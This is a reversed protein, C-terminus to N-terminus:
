LGGGQEVRPRPANPGDTVRVPTRFGKFVLWLGLGIEWAAIPLAALGAFLSVQDFVGFVTGLFSATLLGAGIFGIVPLLRPVLRSRYLVSGLLLANAAPILGPGLLFSWDHVSVLAADVIGLASSDPTIRHITILSLMGIIGILIIVGETIRAAVFGLSAAEGYRRIFPYLVVATGICAVVLVIELLVSWLMAIEGGVAALVGPDTLTPEKLALAPISVVVTLLYLTGATLAVRRSNSM